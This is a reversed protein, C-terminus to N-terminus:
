EALTASVITRHSYTGQAKDYTGACTILNIDRTASAAFLTTPALNALAYTAVRTVRFHLQTGDAATVYIDDGVKTRALDKFAAYIHADLVATGAAGPKVGHQYWGVNNTKGDPVDMEGKENTGVGIVPSNIRVSPISLRAPVIPGTAVKAAPPTPSAPKEAASHLETTVPINAPAAIIPSPTVVISMQPLALAPAPTIIITSSAEADSYLLGPFLTDAALIAM